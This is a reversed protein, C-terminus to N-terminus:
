CNIALRVKDIRTEWKMIKRPMNGGGKSQQVHSVALM